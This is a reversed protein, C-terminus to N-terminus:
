GSEEEKPIEEIVCSSGCDECWTTDSQNWTGFPELVANTNLFVWLAHQVRTGQCKQCRYTASQLSSNATRSMLGTMVDAIRGLTRILEPLQAEFFRVGMRTEHFQIM